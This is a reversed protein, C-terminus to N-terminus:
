NGQVRFDPMLLIREVYSSYSGNAADPFSYICVSVHIDLFHTQATSPTLKNRFIRSSNCSPDSLILSVIRSNINPNIAWIQAPAYTFPSQDVLSPCYRNVHPFQPISLPHVCQRAYSPLSHSHRPSPTHKDLSM